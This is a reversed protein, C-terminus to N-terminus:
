ISRPSQRELYPNSRAKATFVQVNEDTLIFGPKSDSRFPGKQDGSLKPKFDGRAHGKADKQDLPYECVQFYAVLALHKELALDLRDEGGGAREAGFERPIDSDLFEVGEGLQDGFQGVLVPDIGKGKKVGPFPTDDMVQAIWAIDRRQVVQAVREVFHLDALLRGM